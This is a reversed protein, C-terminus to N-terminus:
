QTTSVSFHIFSIQMLCSHMIRGNKKRNRRLINVVFFAIITSVVSIFVAFYYNLNEYGNRQWPFNSNFAFFFVFFFAMRCTARMRREEILLFMPATTTLSNLGLVLLSHWRIVRDASWAWDSILLCCFDSNCGPEYRDTNCMPVNACDPCLRHFCYAM